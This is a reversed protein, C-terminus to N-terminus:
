EEGFTIGRGRKADLACTQVAHPDGVLLGDLNAFLLGVAGNAKVAM